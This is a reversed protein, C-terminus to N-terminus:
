TKLHWTVDVVSPDHGYRDDIVFRPDPGVSGLFDSFFAVALDQGIM